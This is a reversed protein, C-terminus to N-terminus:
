AISTAQPLPSGPITSFMKPYVTEALLPFGVLESNIAIIASLNLNSNFVAYHFHPFPSPERKWKKYAICIYFLDIYFFKFFHNVFLQNKNYLIYQVFFHHIYRLQNVRWNTASSATPELGMKWGMKSFKCQATALRYPM